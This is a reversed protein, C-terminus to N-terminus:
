PLAGPERCTWPEGGRIKATWASRRCARFGRARRDHLIARTAATRARRGPWPLRDLRALWPEADGDQAHGRGPALARDGAAAGGRRLVRSTTAGAARTTSARRAAPELTDPEDGRVLWLRDRGRGRRPLEALAQRAELSPHLLHQRRWQRRATPASSAGASRATRGRACSDLLIRRRALDCAVEHLEPLLAFPLTRRQAVAV